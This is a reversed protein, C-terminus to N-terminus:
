RSYPWLDDEEETEGRQARRSEADEGDSPLQRGTVVQTADDNEDDGYVLLHFGEFEDSLRVVAVQRDPASTGVSAARYELYIEPYDPNSNASATLRGRPTQVVLHLEGPHAPNEGAVVVVDKHTSTSVSPTSPYLIWDHGYTDFTFRQCTPSTTDADAARRHLTVSNPDAKIVSVYEYTTAATGPNTALILPTRLPGVSNLRERPLPRDPHFHLM